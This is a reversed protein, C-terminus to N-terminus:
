SLNSMAQGGNYTECAATPLFPMNSQQVVVDIIRIKQVFPKLDSSSKCISTTAIPEEKDLCLRTM